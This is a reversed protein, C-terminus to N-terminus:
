CGHSHDSYFHREGMKMATTTLSVYEKMLIMCGILGFYLQSFPTLCFFVVLSFKDCLQIKHWSRLVFDRIDPDFHM